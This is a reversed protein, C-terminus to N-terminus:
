VVMYIFRQLSWFATGFVSTKFLIGYFNLNGDEHFLPLVSCYKYLLKNFIPIQFIFFLLMVLIPLQIDSMADDIQEAKKKSKENRKISKETAEEYERVYDVVKKQPKPIYNPQIEEDQQYDSQNMPIDRSPLRVQPLDKLADWDIQPQQRMDSTMKPLPQQQPLPVLDPQLSNGYPNPHVNIPVYTTPTTEYENRRNNSTQHSSDQFPRGSNIPMHQMTINEPLDVIRTTTDSMKITYVICFHRNKKVLVCSFKGLFHVYRYGLCRM